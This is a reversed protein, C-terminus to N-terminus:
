WRQSVLDAVVNSLQNEDFPKAVLPRDRHPAPLKSRSFATVFAFPIGRRELVDAIPQSSRDLLSVNLLAADLQEHLAAPLATVTSMAPGVVVCGMQDLVEVIHMALLAEDEVVLVRPRHHESADPMPENWGSWLFCNHHCAPQEM